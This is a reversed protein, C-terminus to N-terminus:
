RAPVASPLSIKAASPAWVIYRKGDQRVKANLKTLADGVYKWNGNADGVFHPANIPKGDVIRKAVYMHYTAGDRVISPSPFAVHTSDTEALADASSAADEEAAPSACAATLTMVLAALALRM